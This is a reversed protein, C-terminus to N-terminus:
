CMSYDFEKDYFDCPHKRVITNDQRYHVPWSDYRVLEGAQKITREVHVSWRPDGISVLVETGRTLSTDPIYEILPDQYNHKPGVKSIVVRSDPGAGTVDVNTRGGSHDGIVQRGDNSGYFSVTISEDNYSTDIYM